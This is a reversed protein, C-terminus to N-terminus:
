MERSKYIKTMTEKLGPDDEIISCHLPHNRNAKIINKSIKERSTKNNILELTKQFYKDDTKCVLDFDINNFYEMILKDTQAPAEPGFHAVTPVGLLSTDVTSNTNGFPFAALSIDCNKILQLFDPYSKYGYITSNPVQIQILKEIADDKAGKEGPFFHFHLLYQAESNLRKCIDLLRYSLKMVKSNVAIHVKGDDKRTKQPLKKPLEAHAELIIQDTCIATKEKYIKNLDGELKPLLIYDIVESMTTAPHGQTATQLPALRLNALMITWYKMGVSPYYIIDPQEEEILKVLSDLPTKTLDIKITKHHLKSSNEDIENEEAIGVVEFKEKLPRILPAYCRYMAHVSTFREHIILIKPKEKKVHKVPKPVIGSRTMLDKLLHNLTLKIDHKNPTSAYSCYMWASAIPQIHKSTIQFDKVLDGSSLLKTRNNEGQQTLVARQTLWGLMLPLLVEPKQILALNLLEDTTDDISLLALLILLKEKPLEKKGNNNKTLIDIFHVTSRYGSVAFISVINNKLLVLNEFQEITTTQNDSQAWTTILYAIRTYWHSVKWEEEVYSRLSGNEHTQNSIDVIMKIITDTKNADTKLKNEYDQVLQSISKKNEM